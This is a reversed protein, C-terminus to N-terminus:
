MDDSCATNSPRDLRHGCRLESLLTTAPVGAYPVGGCTYVEWCTVGFSWQVCWLCCDSEYVVFVVFLISCYLKIFRLHIIGVVDTSEDFVNTEICEPAMWKIPLKEETGSDSVQHRYYNSCYMDETLGFDSVKIM